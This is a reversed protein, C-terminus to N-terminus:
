GFCLIGEQAFSGCECDNVEVKLLALDLQLRRFKLTAEQFTDQDLRRALIDMKNSDYDMFIRACTMIYGNHTVCFGCARALVAPEVKVKRKVKDVVKLSWVIPKLNEYLHSPDPFPFPVLPWSM